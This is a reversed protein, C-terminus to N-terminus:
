KETGTQCSHAGLAAIVVGTQLGVGYCRQSEACIVAATEPSRFQRFVISQQFIGLPAIIKM